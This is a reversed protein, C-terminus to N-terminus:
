KRIAVSQVGQVEERVAGKDCRRDAEPPKFLDTQEDPAERKLPENKADGHIRGWCVYGPPGCSHM